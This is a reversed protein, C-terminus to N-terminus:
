IPNLNLILKSAIDIDNNDRTKTKLPNPQSGVHIIPTTTIINPKNIPLAIKFIPLLYTLRNDDTLHPHIVIVTVHHVSLYMLCHFKQIMSCLKLIVISKWRNETSMMAIM